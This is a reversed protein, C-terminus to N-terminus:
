NQPSAAQVSASGEDLSGEITDIQIRLYSYSLGLRWHEFPMVNAAIETGYVSGRALNDLRQHIELHPFPV